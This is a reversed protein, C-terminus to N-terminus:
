AQQDYWRNTFRRGQCGLDAPNSWFALRSMLWSLYPSFRKWRSTTFLGGGVGMAVIYFTWFTMVAVYIVGEWQGTRLVTFAWSICALMLFASAVAVQAQSALPLRERLVVARWFTTLALIGLSAYQLLYGLIQAGYLDFIGRSFALTMAISSVFLLATGQM